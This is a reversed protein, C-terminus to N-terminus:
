VHHHRPHGPPPLAIQPAHARANNFLCGAAGSRLSPLCRAGRRRRVEQIRAVLGALAEEDAFLRDGTTDGFDDPQEEGAAELLPLLDANPVGSAAAGGERLLAQPFPSSPARTTHM